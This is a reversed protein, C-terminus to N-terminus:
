GAVDGSAQHNQRGYCVVPCLPAGLLCSLESLGVRAKQHQGPPRALAQVVQTFEGPHM